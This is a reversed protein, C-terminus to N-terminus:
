LWPSHDMTRDNEFVLCLTKILNPDATKPLLSALGMLALDSGNQLSCIQLLAWTKRPPLLSIQIGHYLISIHLAWRGCQLAFCAYAPPIYALTFSFLSGLTSCMFFAGYAVREQFQFGEKVNTGKRWAHLFLVGNCFMELGAWGENIGVPELGCTCWVPTQSDVLCKSADGFFM